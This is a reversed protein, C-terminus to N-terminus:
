MGTIVKYHEAIREIYGTKLRSTPHKIVIFVVGGSVGSYCDLAPDFLLPVSAINLWYQLYTFSYCVVFKPKHLFVKERILVIRKDIFYQFYADRSKLFPITSFKDYHWVNVGPSPLPMLELLANSSTSRGLKGKQYLRVEDTTPTIGELGLQFRILKSWTKQLKPNESFYNSEGIENQFKFLDCIENRDLNIWANLRRYVEDKSNGGGEEMGIFWLPSNLNGYGLFRHSFNYLEDDFDIM